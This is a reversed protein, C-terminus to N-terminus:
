IMKSKNFGTWFYWYDRFIYIYEHRPVLCIPFLIEFHPIM